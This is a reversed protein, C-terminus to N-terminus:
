NSTRQVACANHAAESLPRRAGGARPHPAVRLPAARPRAGHSASLCCAPAAGDNLSGYTSLPRLVVLPHQVM